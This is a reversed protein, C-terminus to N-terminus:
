SWPGSLGFMSSFASPHHHFILNEVFNTLLTQGEHSGNRGFRQKLGGSLKCTCFYSHQCLRACLNSTLGNRLRMALMFLVAVDGALSKLYIQPPTYSTSFCRFEPVLTDVTIKPLLCVARLIDCLLPSKKQLSFDAVVLLLHPFNRPFEQIRQIHVLLHFLVHM